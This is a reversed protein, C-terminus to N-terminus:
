AWPALLQGHRAVVQGAAVVCQRVPRAVVAHALSLAQVLVVDARNGPALGYDKFDCVQAAAFTVTDLAMEVEADRRLNNRWGILMARELMDPMGYPSWTDRIGDNGGAVRVGAAACDLLQAIPRSPTGTTVLAVQLDAMRGLLNQRTALDVDGLCFGHSLAVRGQMAHTQVRDLLLRLSHAGMEGAEHLHMDIPKNHRVAIDFLADLSAAADGDIGQPDLGGLVDAGATLAQELLASTGARRLLGSQPFAVLQIEMCHQVAQRMQMAGQLHGLGAQTDVDVHTRIRTTGNALFDQALAMSQTYADLPAQVRWQREGDIRDLLTPGVDNRFWAAGWHSKDMHTHAEILSPLLLAGHGEEVTTSADADYQGGIAHIRGARLLVDCLEHGMPRVNRILLDQVHVISLPTSPYRQPTRLTVLAHLFAEAVSAAFAM